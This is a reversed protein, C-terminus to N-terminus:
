PCRSAESVMAGPVAFALFIGHKMSMETFKLGRSPPRNAARACSGSGRPLHQGRSWLSRGSSYCRERRGQFVVHTYIYLGRLLPCDALM